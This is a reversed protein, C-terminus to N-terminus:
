KQLWFGSVNIYYIYGYLTSIKTGLMENYFSDGNELFLAYEEFIDERTKNEFINYRLNKFSDVFLDWEEGYLNEQTFPYSYYPSDFYNLFDDSFQEESKINEPSGLIFYVFNWPENEPNSFKLNL